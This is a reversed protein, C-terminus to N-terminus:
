LDEEGMRDFIVRQIAAYDRALDMETLALLKDVDGGVQALHAGIALRHDNFFGNAEGNGLAARKLHNWKAIEHDLQRFDYDSGSVKIWRPFVLTGREVAVDGGGDDLIYCLWANPLAIVRLTYALNGHNVIKVDHYGLTGDLVTEPRDLRARKAPRAAEAHVGSRETVSPEM